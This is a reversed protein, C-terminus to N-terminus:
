NFNKLDNKLNNLILLNLLFDILLLSLIYRKMYLIYKAMFNQMNISKIILILNQHSDLSRTLKNRLIMMRMLLRPSPCIRCSRSNQFIPIPSRIIRGRMKRYGINDVKL